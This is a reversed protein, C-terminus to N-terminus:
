VRAAITPAGCCVRRPWAICVCRADAEDARPAPLAFCRRRAHTRADPLICALLATPRQDNPAAAIAQAKLADVQDHLAEERAVADRERQAASQERRRLTQLEEEAAQQRSSMQRQLRSVLALDEPRAVDRAGTVCGRSRALPLDESLSLCLACTEVPPTSLHGGPRAQGGPGRKTRARAHASLLPMRPTRRAAICACLGRAAAGLPMYFPAAGADLLARLLQAQAELHLGRAMHRAAHEFAAEM